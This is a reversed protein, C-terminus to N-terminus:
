MGHAHSTTKRSIECLYPEMYKWITAILDNTVLEIKPKFLNVVPVEM